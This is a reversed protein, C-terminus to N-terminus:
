RNRPMEKPGFYPTGRIAWDALGSQGLTMPEWNIHVRSSLWGIAVWFQDVSLACNHWGRVNALRVPNACNRAMPHHTKLPSVSAGSYFVENTSGGFPAHSQRATQASSCATCRVRGLPFMELCVTVRPRRCLSAGVLPPLTGQTDSPITSAAADRSCRKRATDGVYM